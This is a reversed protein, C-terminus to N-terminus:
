VGKYMGEEDCSIQLGIELESIGKKYFDVARKKSVLGGTFLIEHLYVEPKVTIDTQLVAGFNKNKAGVQTGCNSCKWYNISYTPAWLLSIPM